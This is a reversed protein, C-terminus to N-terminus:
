RERESAEPMHKPMGSRRKSIMKKEQEPKISYVQPVLSLNKTFVVDKRM